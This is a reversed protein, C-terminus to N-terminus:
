EDAVMRNEALLSPLRIRGSYYHYYGCGYGVLGLITVMIRVWLHDSWPYNLLEMAYYLITFSIIGFLMSRIVISIDKYYQQLSWQLEHMTIWVVFIDTIISTINCAWCVGFLGYKQYFIPLLIAMLIVHIMGRIILWYVKSIAYLAPTVQRLYVIFFGYISLWRLTESVGAYKNPLIIVIDQALLFLIIFLPLSIMQTAKIIEATGRRVMPIDHQVMSLAPFGVSITLLSFLACPAMVIAMALGYIGIEYNTAIKGLIFVDMRMGVADILTVLYTILGYGLLESGAMRSWKIQPRYSHVYYSLFCITASGVIEGYIVGQIGKLFVTCLITAILAMINGAVNVIAVRKFDLQKRLLVLSVSTFADFLFIIGAIRLLHQMEPKNYIHNSIYPATIYLLGFLLINRLLNLIWANDLYHKQNARPNQILAHRIGTDSLEQMLGFVCWVITLIGFQEPALLFTLIWLRSMRILQSTMSGM